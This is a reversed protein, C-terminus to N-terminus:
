EGTRALLYLAAMRVAVGHQVQREVESQIGHAVDSSIEVGENMPGPHLLPAGEAARALRESNVQYLSAYERLSPLSAAGLRERQVRLAMVADAGEIARDLNDEIAVSPLGGSAAAELGVPLLTRPGVLTLSAGLTTLAWMNSRAVRSHKIDGVIVIRKGELSGLKKRLTYADLLAQTPHAHWGDGANIIHASTHRAAM